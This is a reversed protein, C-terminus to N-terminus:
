KLDVLIDTTRVSIKMTKRMGQQCIGSYYKLKSYKGGLGKWNMM